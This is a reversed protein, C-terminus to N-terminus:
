NDCLFCVALCDRTGIEVGNHQLINMATVVQAVARASVPAIWSFITENRM